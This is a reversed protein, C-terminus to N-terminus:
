KEPLAERGDGIISVKVRATTVREVMQSAIDALDIPKGGLGRRTQNKFIRDFYINNVRRDPYPSIFGAPHMHLWHLLTHFNGEYAVFKIEYRALEPVQHYM